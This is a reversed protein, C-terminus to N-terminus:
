ALWFSEFVHLSCDGIVVGWVCGGAFFLDKSRVLKAIAMVMVVVTATSPHFASTAIESVAWLVGISSVV